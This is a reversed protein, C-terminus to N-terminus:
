ANPFRATLSDLLREVEDARARALKRRAEAVQTMPKGRRSTTALQTRMDALEAELLEIFLRAQLMDASREGM